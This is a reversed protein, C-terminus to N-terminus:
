LALLLKTMLRRTSLLVSCLNTRGRREPEMTGDDWNMPVTTETHLSPLVVLKAACPVGVQAKSLSLTLDVGNFLSDVEITEQPLLCPASPANM